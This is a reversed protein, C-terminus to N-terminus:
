SSTISQAKSSEEIPMLTSSSLKSFCSVKAGSALPLVNNENKLLIAGEAEVQKSILEGYTFMEEETAFDAPYYIANKDENILKALKGQVFVALANDAISALFSGIGLGIAFILSWIALGKWPSIFKKKEKKNEKNTKTM